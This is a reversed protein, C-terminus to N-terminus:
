IFRSSALHIQTEAITIVRDNDTSGNFRASFQSCKEAALAALRMARTQDISAAAAAAAASKRPPCRIPVVLPPSPPPPPPPPPSTRANLVLVRHHSSGERDGLQLRLSVAYKDIRFRALTLRSYERRVLLSATDERGGKTEQLM